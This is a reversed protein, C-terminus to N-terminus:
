RFWDELEEMLVLWMNWSGGHVLQFVAPGPL